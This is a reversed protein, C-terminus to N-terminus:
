IGGGSQDIVIITNAELDPRLGLSELTASDAFGSPSLGNSKQYTALAVYTNQGFSGDLVLGILGTDAGSENTDRIWRDVARQLVKVGEGKSGKGFPMDVGRATTARTCCRV